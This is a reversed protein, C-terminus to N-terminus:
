RATVAFGVRCVGSFARCGDLNGPKKNMGTRESRRVQVRLRTGVTMSILLTTRKGGLGEIIDNIIGNLSTFEVIIGCVVVLSIFYPLYTVTQVVNKLRKSRLENFLLALIIPAPFGFLLGYGNIMLTNRIVRWAYVSNFFSQINRLGVWPSGLIGKGPSFNKFAIIVGYMPVYKFLIFYALVPLAMVYLYKFRRYDKVLM